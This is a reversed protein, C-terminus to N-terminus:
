RFGCLEPVWQSKAEDVNGGQIKKLNDVKSIRLKEIKLLKREQNNQKKKM